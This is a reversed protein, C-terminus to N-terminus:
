AALVDVLRTRDERKSRVKRSEFGAFLFDIVRPETKYLCIDTAGIEPKLSRGRGMLRKFAELLSAEAGGSACPRSEARLYVARASWNLRMIDSNSAAFPTLHGKAGM